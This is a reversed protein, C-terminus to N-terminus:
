FGATWGQPRYKKIDRVIATRTKSDINKELLQKDLKVLERSLKDMEKTCKKEQEPDDSAFRISFWSRKENALNHRQVCLNIVEVGYLDLYEGVREEVKSSNSNSM